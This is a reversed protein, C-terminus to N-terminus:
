DEWPAKQSEDCGRSSKCEIMAQTEKPLRRGRPQKRKRSYLVNKPDSGAGKLLNNAWGELYAEYSDRPDLTRTGKKWQKWSDRSSHGVQFGWEQWLGSM